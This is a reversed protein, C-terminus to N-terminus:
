PVRELDSPQVLPTELATLFAAWNQKVFSLDPSILRAFDQRMRSM